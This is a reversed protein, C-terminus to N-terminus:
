HHRISLLTICNLPKALNLSLKIPATTLSMPWWISWCRWCGTRHHALEPDFHEVYDGAPISRSM